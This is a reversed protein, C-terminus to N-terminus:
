RYIPLRILCDIVDLGWGHLAQSQLAQATKKRWNYTCFRCCFKVRPTWVFHAGTGAGLIGSIRRYFLIRAWKTSFSSSESLVIGLFVENKTRTQVANTWLNQSEKFNPIDHLLRRPNILRAKLKLGSLWITYRVHKRAGQVQVHSTENYKTLPWWGLEDRSPV